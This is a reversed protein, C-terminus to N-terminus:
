TILNGEEDWEALDNRKSQDIFKAEWDKDYSM